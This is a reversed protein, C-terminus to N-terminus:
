IVNILNILDFIYFQTSRVFNILDLYNSRTSQDMLDDRDDM